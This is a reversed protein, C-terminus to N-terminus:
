CVIYYELKTISATTGVRVHLYRATILINIGNMVQLFPRLHLDRVKYDRGFLCMSKEQQKSRTTPLRFRSKM